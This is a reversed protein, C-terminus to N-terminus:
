KRARKKQKKKKEEEEEKKKQQAQPPGLAGGRVRAGATAMNSKGPDRTPTKRHHYRSERERERKRVERMIREREKTPNQSDGGRM